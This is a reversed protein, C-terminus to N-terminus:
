HLNGMFPGKGGPTCASHINLKFISSERRYNGTALALESVKRRIERM